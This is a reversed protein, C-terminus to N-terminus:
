ASSLGTSLKAKMVLTNKSVPNSERSVSFGDDYAGPGPTASSSRVSEVMRKGGTNWNYTVSNKYKGSKYEGIKNM